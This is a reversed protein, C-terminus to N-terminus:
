AIQLPTTQSSSAASPLDRRLLDNWDKVERPTIIRVNRREDRWRAAATTAANVGAGNSDNDAGITVRAALPISPLSLAVLGGTSGAALTPLGNMQQLSLGTEIGETVNVQEGIPGLYVAGGRADGLMLKAKPVLAHLTTPPLSSGNISVSSLRAPLRPALLPICRGAHWQSRSRSRSRSCEPVAPGHVPEMADAAEKGDTERHDRESRIRYIRTINLSEMIAKGEAITLGVTALAILDDRGLTIVEGEMLTGPQPEAILKV